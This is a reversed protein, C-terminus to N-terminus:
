MEKCRNYAAEIMKSFLEELKADELVKLGQETAGGKSAVKGALEAPSYKSSELLALSGRITKILIDKKKDEPLNLKDAAKLWKDFFSLFFGPGCGSLATVDDIQSEESVEFAYGATSLIKQIDTKSTDSIDKNAYWGVVGRNVLAPTNPMARVIKKCGLEKEIKEMSVGAMISIVVTDKPIKGSIQQALEVFVQPKVALILFDSDLTKTNDTSTKVGLSKSLASLKEESPDSLFINEAETINQDVFAQALASGMNGAGILSIKM